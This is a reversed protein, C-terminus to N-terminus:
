NNNGALKMISDETLDKLNCCNQHWSQSCKACIVHTSDPDSKYCPCKNKSEAILKSTVNLLTTDHRHDQIPSAPPSKYLSDESEDFTNDVNLEISKDKLKVHKPTSSLELKKTPKPVKRSLTSNSIPSNNASRSRMGYQGPPRNLPVKNASTSNTRPKTMITSVAPPIRLM